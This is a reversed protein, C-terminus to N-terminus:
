VISVDSVLLAHRGCHFSDRTGERARELAHTLAATDEPVRGKAMQGTRTCGLGLTRCGTGGFGAVAGWLGFHILGSLTEYSMCIVMFHVQQLFFDLSSRITLRPSQVAAKQM